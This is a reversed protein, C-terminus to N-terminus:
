VRFFKFEIKGGRYQLICMSPVSAWGTFGTVCKVHYNFPSKKLSLPMVPEEVRHLVSKCGQAALRADLM